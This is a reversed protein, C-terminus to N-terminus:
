TPASLCRPSRPEALDRATAVGQPTLELRWQCALAGDPIRIPDRILNERLGAAMAQQFAEPSVSVGTFAEFRELGAEFNPESIRVRLGTRLLLALLDAAEM